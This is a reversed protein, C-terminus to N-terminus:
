VEAMRKQGLKRSVNDHLEDTLISITLPSNGDNIIINANLGAQKPIITGAAVDWM